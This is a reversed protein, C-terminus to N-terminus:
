QGQLLAALGAANQGTPFIFQPFPTQLFSPDFQVTQPQFGSFDTAGGLIAQQIQPLGRAITGQAGVNGQQFASLQQPQSQSLVNRAAEFGINRNIDGIPILNLADQRAQGARQEINGQAAANAAIQAQQSSADSGGFFFDAINSM